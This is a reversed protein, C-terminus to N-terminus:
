DYSVQEPSMYLDTGVQTTHGEKQLQVSSEDRTLEILSTTSSIAGFCESSSWSQGDAAVQDRPLFSIVDDDVQGTANDNDANCLMESSSSDSDTATKSSANCTYSTTVLGFDALKIKERNDLLINSPKLDRHIYGSAHLYAVASVIQQFICLHRPQRSALTGHSRLWDHLSDRSYLQMQIYMYCASGKSITADPRETSLSTNSDDSQTKTGPFSISCIPQPGCLSDRVSRFAPFLEMSEVLSLIGGFM